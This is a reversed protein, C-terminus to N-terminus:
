FPLIQPKDEHKELIKDPDLLKITAPKRQEELNIERMIEQELLRQEELLYVSDKQSEHEWDGPILKKEM